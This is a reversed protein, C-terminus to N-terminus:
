AMKPIQDLALFRSAAVSLRIRGKDLVPRYGDAWACFLLVTGTM